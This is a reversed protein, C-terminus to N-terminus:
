VFRRWFYNKSKKEIKQGNKRHLRFIPKNNTESLDSGFIIKQNKKRLKKDIKWHLRFTPENNTESLELCSIIKRNKKDFNNYVNKQKNDFM